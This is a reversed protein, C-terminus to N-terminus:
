PQLSYDTVPRHQRYLVLERRTKKGMGNDRASRAVRIAAQATQIAEDFRGNAAYAAALTNLAKPNKRNSLLSAQEALALAEEEARLTSEPHTALIWALGLLADENEPKLTLAVRYELIAEEGRGQEALASALWGRVTANEPELAILRRLATEAEAPQNSQAYLQGAFSLLLAHEPVIQLGQLFSNMAASINGQGLSDLGARKLRMVRKWDADSYKIGPDARVHYLPFGPVRFPLRGLNSVIPTMEDAIQPFQQGVEDLMRVPDYSIEPIREWGPFLQELHNNEDSILGAGRYNERLEENTQIIRAFLDNPEGIVIADLDAVVAPMEPFRERILDLNIPQSAGILVLEEDLGGILLVYPFVDTFSRVARAVADPPMQYYPLWQSMMGTPTLHTLVDQYYEHSYLRYVGAAMPPPPESTILDYREDTLSLFARGDDNILRVRPDLHVNSNTDSFEPATEFVNSNLDVIDLKTITEHAAIASATSGVGFCILLAKQPNKQALLPFHAMLRMYTQGGITTGSMIINGFYLYKSDGQKVVFSTVAGNSKMSTVPFKASPFNPNVYNRDFGGPVFYAAIAFVSLAAAPKWIALPRNEQMLQLLLAGCILLVFILKLSYFISVM